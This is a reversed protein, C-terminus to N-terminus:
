CRTDTFWAQWGGHELELEPAFMDVRLRAVIRLDQRFEECCSAAGLGVGRCCIWLPRLSQSTFGGYSMSFERPRALAKSQSPRSTKILIGVPLFSRHHRSTHWQRPGPSPSYSPGDNTGSAPPLFPFSQTSPQTPDQLPHIRYPFRFYVPLLRCVM